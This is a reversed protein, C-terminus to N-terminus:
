AKIFIKKIKDKYKACLIGALKGIGLLIIAVGFVYALYCPLIQAYSLKDPLGLLELVYPTSRNVLYIPLSYKGLFRCLKEPMLAAIGTKETFMITVVAFMLIVEIYDLKWSPGFDRSKQMLFLLGGLAGLQFLSLVVKGFKTLTINKENVARVIEYCVCGLLLGAVARLVGFTTYGLWEEAHNLSGTTQSLYAYIALSGVPAVIHTFNEKFKVALPFLVAMSLIMASLYWSPGNSMSVAKVGTLKILLIEPLSGGLEVIAEKFTHGLSLQKVAFSLLFAALMYPYFVKIKKKIFAVSNKGLNESPCKLASNAMFYGSVLFFFETSTYAYPLIPTYGFIKKSHFVAIIVAFFFKLFDTEPNYHKKKM